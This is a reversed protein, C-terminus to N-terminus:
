CLFTVSTCFVAHYLLPCPVASPMTYFLAHHLLPCPISSPMTCFLAHYLLPCPVASPMTCFLAHYLLPCPAFSPMTYFLAHYLLPCPVSSPMTCCLAHYLLPGAFHCSTSNVFACIYLKQQIVVCHSSRVLFMSRATVVVCLFAIGFVVSSCICVEVVVSICFM